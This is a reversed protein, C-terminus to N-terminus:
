PAPDERREDDPADEGSTEDKDTVAGIEDPNVGRDVGSRRRMDRFRRYVHILTLISGFFVFPGFIELLLTEM